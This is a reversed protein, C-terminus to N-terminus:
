RMPLRSILVAFEAAAWGILWHLTVFLHFMTGFKSVDPQVALWMWAVPVAAICWVLSRRKITDRRLLRGVVLGTAFSVGFAIAYIWFLWTGAFLVWAALLAGIVLVRVAPHGLV